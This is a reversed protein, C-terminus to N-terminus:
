GSVTSRRSAIWATVDSDLWAVSKEGLRKPSPFTQRNIMKYLSSRSMGIRQCVEQMRILRKDGRPACGTPPETPQLQVSPAPAPVSPTPICKRISEQVLWDRHLAERTFHSVVEDVTRGLVGTEAIALLRDKAAASLRLEIACRETQEPSRERTKWSREPDDMSSRLANPPHRPM